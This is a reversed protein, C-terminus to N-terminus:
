MCPRCVARTASSMRFAPPVAACDCIDSHDPDDEGAHYTEGFSLETWACM